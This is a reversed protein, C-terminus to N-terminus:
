SRCEHLGQGGQHGSRLRILKEDTYTTYLNYTYTSIRRQFSINNQFYIIEFTLTFTVTPLINM